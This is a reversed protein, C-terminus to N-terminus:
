KGALAEHSVVNRKAIKSRTLALSRLLEDDEKKNEKVIEEPLGSFFLNPSENENGNDSENKDEEVTGRTQGSSFFIQHSM